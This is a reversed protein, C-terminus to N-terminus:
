FRARIYKDFGYRIKSFLSKWFYEDVQYLFSPDFYCNITCGQCFDFRGSKLRYKQVKKSFWLESFNGEIPLRFKARHYCPLLLENAPSIVAVAMGVRCRPQKIDNGKNRILLHFARNFYVYPTGFFQELHRLAQPSIPNQDGYVFVPNVILILKKKQAFEALDGIARFNEDTVTFLLDPREGIEEAVEISRIVNKFSGKGRIKDNEKENMSDLSFHLFDVLGKLERAREPYLQCNTTITTRLGIKKAMKLMQALEPHLLPEGGTFDVFRVGIKKLQILNENVENIFADTSKFYHSQPIDCYKCHANCRNTIYYHALIPKKLM